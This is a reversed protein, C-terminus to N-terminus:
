STARLTVWAGNKFCVYWARAANAQSVGTAGATGNITDTRGLRGFVTMADASDNNVVFVVAGAICAPLQVSDAATAVVSVENIGLQLQTASTQGGGAFATLTDRTQIQNNQNIANVISAGDVLRFGPEPVPLVAMVAGYSALIAVLASVALSGLYRLM